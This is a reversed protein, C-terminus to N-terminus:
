RNNSKNLQSILYRAIVFDLGLLAIALLGFLVIEQNNMNKFEPRVIKEWLLGFYLIVM